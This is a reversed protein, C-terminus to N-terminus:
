LNMVTEVPRFTKIWIFEPPNLDPFIQHPIFGGVWLILLRYQTGRFTGNGQYLPFTLNHGLMHLEIHIFMSCILYPLYTSLTM